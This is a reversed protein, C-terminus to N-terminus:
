KSRCRAGFRVPTFRAKRGANRARIEDARLRPVKAESPQGSKAFAISVEELAEALGIPDVAEIGGKMLIPIGRSYYPVSQAYMGREYYFRALEFLRSTVARDDSVPEADVLRLSGLLLPEAEEFKCQYAKMRGAGYMALSVAADSTGELYEALAREYDREAEAFDGALDAKVALDYYKPAEAAHALGAVLLALVFRM